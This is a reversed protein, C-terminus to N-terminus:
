EAVESVKKVDEFRNIVGDAQFDAAGKGTHILASGALYVRLGPFAERLAQIIGPLQALNLYNTVSLVVIDPQLAGAAHLLTNRPTNAGIFVADFGLIRFFDAGMRIGIEHYEEEPCALMVRQGKGPRGYRDRESLIFPQCAGMVAQVIASQVHEQWILADEQDRPVQIRNLAPALIGEYLQPVTVLGESLLSLAFAVAEEMERAQLYAIFRNLSDKIKDAM